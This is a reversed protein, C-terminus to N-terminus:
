EEHGATEGDRQAIAFMRQGCSREKHEDEAGDESPTNM